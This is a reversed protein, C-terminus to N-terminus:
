TWHPGHTRVALVGTVRAHRLPRTLIRCMLQAPESISTETQLATGTGYRYRYPEGPVHSIAQCWSVGPEVMPDRWMHVHHCSMFCWIQPAGSSTSEMLQAHPIALPGGGTSDLTPAEQLCTGKPSCAEARFYMTTCRINHWEPRTTSIMVLGELCECCTSYRAHM